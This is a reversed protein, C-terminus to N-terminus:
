ETNLTKQSNPNDIAFAVPYKVPLLPSLLFFCLTYLSANSLPHLSRPSLELLSLFIKETQVGFAFRLALPFHCCDFSYKDVVFKGDM